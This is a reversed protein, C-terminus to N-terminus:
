FNSSFHLIFCHVNNFCEVFAHPAWIKFLLYLELWGTTFLIYYFKFLYLSFFFFFFAVMAHPRYLPRLGMVNIETCHMWIWHMAFWAVSTKIVTALDSEALLLDLRIAPWLHFFINKATRTMHHLSFHLFISLSGAMKLFSFHSCSDRLCFKIVTNTVQGFHKGRGILIAKITGLNLEAM